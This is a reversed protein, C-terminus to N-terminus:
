MDIKFETNEYGNLKDWRKMRRCKGDCALNFHFLGNYGSNKYCQGSSHSYHKCKTRYLTRESPEKVKHMSDIFMIMEMDEHSFEAYWAEKTSHHEKWRRKLEERIRGKMWEAGAKFINAFSLGEGNELDTHAKIVADQFKKDDQMSM